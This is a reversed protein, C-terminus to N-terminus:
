PCGVRGEVSNEWGPTPAGVSHCWTATADPDTLNLREASLGEPLTNSPAYHEEPARYTSVVAPTTQAPGNLLAVVKRSDRSASLGGLLTSRSTSADVMVLTGQRVAVAAPDFERGAIVARRGPALFTTDGDIYASLDMSAVVAGTVLDLEALSLLSLDYTSTPSVNAVEVFEQNKEESASGPPNSYVETVLIRPLPVTRIAVEGYSAVNDCADWVEIIAGYARGRRDVGLDLGTVVASM